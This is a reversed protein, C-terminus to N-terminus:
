AYPEHPLRAMGVDTFHAGKKCSWCPTCPWSPPEEAGEGREGKGRGRSDKFVIGFRLNVYCAGGGGSMTAGWM